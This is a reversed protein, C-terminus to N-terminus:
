KTIGAINCLEPGYEIPSGKKSETADGLEGYLEALLNSNYNASEKEHKLHLSPAQAGHITKQNYKQNNDSAM